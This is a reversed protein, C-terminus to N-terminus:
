VGLTDACLKRHWDALAANTPTTFRREPLQQAKTMRFKKVLSSILKDRADLPVIGKSHSHEHLDSTSMVELKKQYEEASEINDYGDNVGFLKFMNVQPRAPLAAHTQHSPLADVPKKPAKSAKTTTSKSSKAM